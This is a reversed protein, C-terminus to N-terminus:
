DHHEPGMLESVNDPVDHPQHQPPKGAKADHYGQDYARCSAESFGKHYGDRHGRDYMADDRGSEYGADFGTDWGEQRALDEYETPRRPQRKRAQSM